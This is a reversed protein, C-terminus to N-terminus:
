VVFTVMQVYAGLMGFDADQVKCLHYLSIASFLSESVVCFLIFGLTVLGIRDFVM